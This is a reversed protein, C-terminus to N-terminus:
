ICRRSFLIVLCTITFFVEAYSVRELCSLLSVDDGQAGKSVVLAGAEVNAIDSVLVLWSNSDRVLV